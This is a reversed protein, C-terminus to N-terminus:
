EVGGTEDRGELEINREGSWIERTLMRMWGRCCSLGGVLAYDDGKEALQSM